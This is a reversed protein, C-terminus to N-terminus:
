AIYCLMYLKTMANVVTIADYILVAGPEQGQRVIIDGDEFDEIARM